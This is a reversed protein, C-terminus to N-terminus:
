ITKKFPGSAPIGEATPQNESYGLKAPLIEYNHEGLMPGAGTINGPTRSLRGVVNQM